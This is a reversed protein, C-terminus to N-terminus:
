AHVQAQMTGPVIIAEIVSRNISRQKNPTISHLKRIKPLQIFTFNTSNLSSHYRVIESRYFMSYKTKQVFVIEYLGEQM